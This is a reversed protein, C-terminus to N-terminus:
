EWNEWEEDLRELEAKREELEEAFARFKRADRYVAEEQMKREIAEIREETEIIAEELQAFRYPNRIKKSGSSATRPSSERPREKPKSPRELAIEEKRRALHASWGGETTITRGPRVEVIRDAVAQLLYRDHSVLVVTGPFDLIAEELAERGPIDLHNTPEDLLLVNPRTLFFLALALRAAEGGSLDEARKKVDDGSFLFRGLWDRVEQRLANPMAAQMAELVTSGPRPPSPEQPLYGFRAKGGREVTGGDPVLEGSLVRLLTTKGAGNPGVIGVVTGTSVRMSVRDLITRGGLAVTVDTLRLVEGTHIREAEAPIVMKRGEGSPTDLRELRSLRKRKGRAMSVNQAAINRRIFEEEKEIHRRQREYATAERERREERLAEFKTYNGPYAFVKAREVEFVSEAVRDLFWRDHSIVVVTGPRTLLEAELWETADIDLHNTPEDLILLDPRGLLARALSVRTAQGGSLTAVDQDRAAEAVGLGSLAREV